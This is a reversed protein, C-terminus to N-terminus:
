RSGTRTVYLDVRGDRDFDAAVIGGADAPFRLNSLQTVEEFRKGGQNRYLRGDGLVLDEWGDGDLDVFAAAIAMSVATAPKRPLGVEETVDRFKGDPLGKYLAYLNADTIFLDLIGDRDFDCVYVGGSSPVLDKVAKTMWNDHFRGSDIGREAAVER